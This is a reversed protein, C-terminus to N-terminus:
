IACCPNLGNCDDHLVVTNYICFPFRYSLERARGDYTLNQAFKQTKRGPSRWWIVTGRSNPKSISDIKRFSPRRRPTLRLRAQWSVFPRYLWFIPPPLPTVSKQSMVLEDKSHVGGGGTQIVYNCFIQLYQRSGGVYYEADLSKVDLLSFIIHRFKVAPLTIINSRRM